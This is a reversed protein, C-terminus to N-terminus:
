LIVGEQRAIDHIPLNNLGPAAILVDVKRGHMRRSIKGALTAALWAPNDPPSSLELFLDVDGGRAEDNLRSGFLRVPVDSGMVERTMQRIMLIDEPQLRM